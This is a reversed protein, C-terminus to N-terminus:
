SYSRGHPAFLADASAHMFRKHWLMGVDVKAVTYATLQYQHRDSRDLPITVGNPLQMRCRGGFTTEVGHQRHMEDVSLLHQKFFAAFLSRKPGVVCIPSVLHMKWLSDSLASPLSTLTTDTQSQLELTQLISTSLLSSYIWGILSLFQLVVIQAGNTDKTSTPEALM